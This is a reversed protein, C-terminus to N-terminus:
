LNLPPFLNLSFSQIKDGLKIGWFNAKVVDYVRIVNYVKPVQSVIFGKDTKFERLDKSQHM